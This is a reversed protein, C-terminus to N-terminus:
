DSAGMNRCLVMGDLLCHKYNNAPTVRQGGVVYTENDVYGPVPYRTRALLWVRVARIRGLDITPNLAAGGPADSADIVGDMNTDLHRDLKQDSDSDYAWIVIGDAPALYTDLAGNGPTDVADNDFAYAFAVAVIDYAIADNKSGRDDGDGSIVRRLETAGHDALGDKNDDDWLWCTIYENDDLGDANLDLSFRVKGIGADEFGFNGSEKPDFGAMRLERRMFALASRANQQMDVVLQERTRARQQAQYAQYILGFVVLSVAMAIMLEVLTLGKINLRM